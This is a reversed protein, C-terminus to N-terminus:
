ALDVVVNPVLSEERGSGEDFSPKPPRVDVVVDSPVELRAVFTLHPGRLVDPQWWGYRSHGLQELLDMEVHHHHWVM